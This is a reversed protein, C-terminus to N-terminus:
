TDKFWKRWLSTVKWLYSMLVSCLKPTPGSHPEQCLSSEEWKPVEKLSRPAVLVVIAKGEM